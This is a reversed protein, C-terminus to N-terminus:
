EIGAQPIGLQWHQVKRRHEAYTRSFDHSGDNRSVFFLADIEAPRVAAALAEAGPNAIPGAPLGHIVYTNWPTRTQLHVRRLRDQYGPMRYIATPDAQLRMGIRLRNHYVGSVQPMEHPIQTEKEIISALIVAEHASALGAATAVEAFDAPIREFFTDIMRRVVRPAPVGPAFVYTEPFLYGEAETAPIGYAALLDPNRSAAIFAAAPTIGAREILAAIEEATLGEPITVSTTEVQGRHMRRLLALDSGSRPIRYTGAKVSDWGLIRGWVETRRPAGLVGEAAATQLTARTSVGAPVEFLGGPTSRPLWPATMMAAGIGLAPGLLGLALLIRLRM